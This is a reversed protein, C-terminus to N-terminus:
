VVVLSDALGGRTIKIDAHRMMNAIRIRYMCTGLLSIFSSAIGAIDLSLRRSTHYTIIISHTSTEMSIAELWIAKFFIIIYYKTLKNLKMM